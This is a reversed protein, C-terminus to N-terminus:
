SFFCFWSVYEHGSAHHLSQPLYIANSYRLNSHAFPPIAVPFCQSRSFNPIEGPVVELLVLPGWLRSWSWQYPLLIGYFYRCQDWLFQIIYIYTFIGIRHPGHPPTRNKPLCKWFKGNFFTITIGQITTEDYRFGPQGHHPVLTGFM